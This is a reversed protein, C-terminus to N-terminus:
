ATGLGGALLGLVPPPARCLAAGVNASAAYAFMQGALAKGATLTGSDRLWALTANSAFVEDRSGVLEQQLRQLSAVCTRPVMDQQLLM